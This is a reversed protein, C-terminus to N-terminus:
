LVSMDRNRRAVGQFKLAGTTTCMRRTCTNSKTADRETLGDKVSKTAAFFMVDDPNSSHQRMGLSHGIEHAATADMEDKSFGSGDHNVTLLRINAHSIGAIRAGVQGRANLECIGAESHSESKGVTSPDDTFTVTIEAREKETVPTWTVKGETAKCWLDLARPVCNEFTKDYNKVEDAPAIYVRLPMREVSWRTIVPKSVAVFYDPGEADGSTKMVKKLVPMRDKAAAAMESSHDMHLMQKLCLRAQKLDGMAEYCGALATIVGPQKPNEELMKLFIESAKQNDGQGSYCLGLIEQAKEYYSHHTKQLDELVPIAQAYKKNKYLDLATNYKEIVGNASEIGDIKSLLEKVNEVNPGPPEKAIYTNLCERAAAYDRKQAYITGMPPLVRNNSPDLERARKLYELAKDKDSEAALNGLCGRVVSEEKPALKFTLCKEFATKAEEKKDERMFTIAENYVQIAADETKEDDAFASPNLFLAVMCATIFQRKM